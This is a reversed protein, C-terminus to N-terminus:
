WAIGSVLEHQPAIDNYNPLAARVASEEREVQEQFLHRESEIQKELAELKDRRAKQRAPKIRAVNKLLYDLWNPEDIAEDADYFRLSVLHDLEPKVQEFAAFVKRQAKITPKATLAQRREAVIQLATRASALAETFYRTRATAEAIYFKWKHQPKDVLEAPHPSGYSRRTYNKALLCGNCM